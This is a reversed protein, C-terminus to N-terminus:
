TKFHKSMSDPTAFDALFLLSSSLCLPLRGEKGSLAREAEFMVNLLFM